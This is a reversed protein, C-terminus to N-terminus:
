EHQKQMEHTVMVSRLLALMVEIVVGLFIPLTTSFAETALGIIGVVVMGAAAIALIMYMIHLFQVRRGDLLSGLTRLAKGKAHKKRSQKEEMYNLAVQDPTGLDRLVDRCDLIDPEHDGAYGEMMEYIMDTLERTVRGKESAPVKSTVARVYNEVKKDVLM